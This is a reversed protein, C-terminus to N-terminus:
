GYVEKNYCTECYVNGKFESPYVSVFPEGAGDCTRLYLERGPRMNMRLLHRQDPHKHPLSLKHRRYFELERRLIRFPRGTDECIVAKQLITDDVLAIDNPLDQAAITEIGQPVNIACDEDQRKWWRQLVEEKSLPFYEHAVSENYRCFSIDVPFFQWREWNQIMHEIIKPVLTEYEEKTYQKNLICYEGHRIGICGFLNSSTHCADCYFGNSMLNCFKSFHLNKNQYAWLYEYCFENEETYNNDQCRVLDVVQQCYKCDESRDTYFSFHTNKCQYVYNGSVRDVQEGQMYKHPITLQLEQLKNHLMQRTQPDSLHIWQVFQQYEEKTKKQNFICYEQDRLGACGICNKCWKLDFCYRLESSSHCDQCYLCGHLKRCDVCEYCDECERIVLTDICDRSYYPSGYYCDESYVSGAILYCNKVNGVFSCYDSNESNRVSLALQPVQSQLEQFQTFFPKTFDFDRWYKKADRGDGFWANLEYVPINSHEGLYSIIRKGTMGCTRPYLKRENRRAFRRRQREQPCLTPTPIQYKKDGFTPSIKELLDKDSQFIAFPQGTIACTKWEVIPDHTTESIFEYVKKDM